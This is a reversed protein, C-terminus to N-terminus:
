TDKNRYPYLQEFYIALINRPGVVRVNFIKDGIIENKYLEDHDCFNIIDDNIKKLLDLTIDLRIWKKKVNLCDLIVLKQLSSFAVKLTPCLVIKQLCQTTYDM